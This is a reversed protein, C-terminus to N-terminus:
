EPKVVDEPFLKAVHCSFGPVVDEGSLTHSEYLKSVSGNLRHVLVKRDLPNVEWVLKVGAELYERTKRDVDYYKDNPSIVEVALDPVISFMTEMSWGAPLRDKQIFSVDPKRVNRMAKPFCRYYSECNFVRGLKNERVHMTLFAGLDNAVASSLNSLNLEELRGEVLEYLEHRPLEFYEEVTYLTPATAVAM